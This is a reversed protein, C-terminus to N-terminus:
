RAADNGSREPSKTLTRHLLARTNRFTMGETSARIALLTAVLLVVHVGVLILLALAPHVELHLLWMFLGANIFAWISALLLACFIGLIVVQLLSVAALEAEAGVLRANQVASAKHVGVWDGILSRVSADREPIDQEHSGQM